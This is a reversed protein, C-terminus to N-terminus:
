ITESQRFTSIAAIYVVRILQCLLFVHCRFQFDLCDEFYSLNWSLNLYVEFIDFHFWGFLIKLSFLNWPKSFFWVASIRYIENM